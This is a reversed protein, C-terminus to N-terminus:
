FLALSPDHTTGILLTFIPRALSIWGLIGAFVTIQRIPAPLSSLPVFKGAQRSLIIGGAQWFAWFVYFVSFEHWLGIVLMAAIVGIVPSRTLALTPRFVYDRSWETLSMHWRSWFDLLSTARWPKNFNEELRLGMMLSSGLAVASLGAFLFYLRIWAIASQLWAFMFGDGLGLSRLREATVAALAVEGVFYAMFAGILCRELGSLFDPWDFRRRVIQRQFNPLRHIPGVVMVPLFFQYRALDRLVPAPLRGMWWEGLVHLLRLASYSVGIWMYGHSFESFVLCALLGVAALLVILGRRGTSEGVRIGVFTLLTSGALWIATEPSFAALVAITWVAVADLAISRPLLWSLPASLIALLILSTITLNM